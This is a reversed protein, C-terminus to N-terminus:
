FSWEPESAGSGLLCGLHVGSQVPGKQCTNEASGDIGFPPPSVSLERTSQESFMTLDERHTESAKKLARYEFHSTEPQALTAQSKPVSSRRKNCRRRKRQALRNQMRRRKKPDVTTARNFEAGPDDGLREFVASDKMLTTAPDHVFQPPTPDMNFPHVQQHMGTSAFSFRITVLLSSRARTRMSM